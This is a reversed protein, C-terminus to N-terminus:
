GAQYVRLAYASYSSFTCFLTAQYAFSRCIACYYNTIIWAYGILFRGSLRVLPSNRLVEIEFHYVPWIIHSFEAEKYRM